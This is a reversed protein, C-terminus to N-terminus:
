SSPKFAGRNLINEAVFNVSSTNKKAWEIATKAIDMATIQMDYQKYLKTLEGSGCGLELMNGKPYVASDLFPKIAKFNSQTEQATSWGIAGSNRLKVYQQDHLEYNVKM